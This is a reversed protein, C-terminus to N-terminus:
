SVNLPFPEQSHVESKSSSLNESQTVSAQTEESKKQRTLDRCGDNKPFSLFLDYIMRFAMPLYVM